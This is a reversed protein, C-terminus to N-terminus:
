GLCQWCLQKVAAICREAVRFAKVAACLVSRSSLESLLTMKPSPHTQWTAGDSVSAIIMGVNGNAASKKLMSQCSLKGSVM